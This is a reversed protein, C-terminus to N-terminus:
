THTTLRPAALENRIANESVEENEYREVRCGITRAEETSPWGSTASRM